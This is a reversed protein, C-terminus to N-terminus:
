LTVGGSINGSKGNSSVNIVIEVQGKPLGSVPVNFGQCTSTSASEAVAASSNYVTSGGQKISLTCTGGNLFQDINVRIVLNSGTVGAYTIVGTIDNATNPDGGDYQVVPEKEKVEPEKKKEEPKNEEKKDNKQETLTTEGSKPTDNSKDRFYGDWVFYCIVGAAVILLLFLVRSVWKKSRRRRKKAM